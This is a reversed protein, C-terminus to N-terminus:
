NNGIENVDDNQQLFKNQEKLRGDICNLSFACWLLLGIIVTALIEQLEIQM